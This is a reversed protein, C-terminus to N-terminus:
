FRVGATVFIGNYDCIGATHSHMHKFGIGIYPECRRSSHNAYWILNAEYATHKWDCNGISNVVSVRFDLADQSKKANLLKVGLGGGLDQSRTYTKVGDKDYLGLVGEAKIFGYFRSSFNYGFNANLSLPAMGKNKVGGNMGVELFLKNQTSSNAESTQAQCMLGCLCLSLVLVLKNMKQLMGFNVVQM